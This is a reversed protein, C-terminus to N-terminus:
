FNRTFCGTGGDGFGDTRSRLCTSADTCTSTTSIGAVGPFIREELAVNMNRPEDWVVTPQGFFSAQGNARLQQTSWNQWILNTRSRSQLTVELEYGGLPFPVFYVDEYVLVRYTGVPSRCNAAQGVFSRGAEQAGMQSAIRIRTVEISSAKDTHYTSFFSPILSADGGRIVKMYGYAFQYLDRGIKVVGYRNLLPAYSRPYVQLQFAYEPDYSILGQYNEQLKRQVRAAMQEVLGESGTPPAALIAPLEKAEFDTIEADLLRRISVFGM